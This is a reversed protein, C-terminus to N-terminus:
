TFDIDTMLFFFLKIQRLFYIKRNRSLLLNVDYYLHLNPDSIHLYHTGIFRVDKM